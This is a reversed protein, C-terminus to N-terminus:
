SKTERKQRKAAPAADSEADCRPKNLKKYRNKIDNVARGDLSKAIEAWPTGRSSKPLEDVLKLILQDEDAIWDGKKIGPALHYAWRERCM